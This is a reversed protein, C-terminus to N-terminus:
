YEEENFYPFLSNFIYQSIIHLEEYYMNRLESTDKM